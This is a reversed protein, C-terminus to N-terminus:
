SYQLMHRPSRAHGSLEVLHVAFVFIPSQKTPNSAELLNIISLVNSSHICTLIRFESNPKIRRISRHTHKKSPGNSKHILALIPGVAATM